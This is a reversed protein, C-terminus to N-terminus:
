VIFVLREYPVALLQQNIIKKLELEGNYIDVFYLYLIHPIDGRTSMKLVKTLFNIGNYTRTQDHIAALEKEYNAAIIRLITNKRNMIYSKKMM